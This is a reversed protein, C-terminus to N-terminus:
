RGPGVTRSAITIQDPYTMRGLPTNITPRAKLTIRTPDANLGAIGAALDLLNEASGGFFEVLNLHVGLPILVGQGPPMTLSTDLVGSVTEKNDLFLTWALRVMTAATGNDSPNDARVNLTMDLPVDKRTVALALRGIEIASLDRYNAIRTLTVGALRGNQVNNLAFEVRRLAAVQSLTACAGAIVIFALVGIRLLRQQHNM